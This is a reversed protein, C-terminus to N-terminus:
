YIWINRGSMKYADGDGMRAALQM